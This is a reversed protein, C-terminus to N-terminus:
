EEWPFFPKGQRSTQWWHILFPPIAMLAWIGCISACFQFASV